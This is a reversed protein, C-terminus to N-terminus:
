DDVVNEVYRLDLRAAQRELLHRERDAVRDLVADLQERRSGILFSELQRAADGRVHGCREDAIRSTKTLNQQVQHTVGDLERVVTFDADLDGHRLPRSVVHREAAGHTVGADPNWVVLPPLDEAREDLCIGGRRPSVAARTEPEGDRRLQHFHHAATEPELALWSFSALEVEDRLESEM